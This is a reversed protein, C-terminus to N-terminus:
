GSKALIAESARIFEAKKDFYDCIKTLICFYAYISNVNQSIQAVISTSALM